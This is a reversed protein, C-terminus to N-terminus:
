NILYRYILSLSLSLAFSLSLAINWKHCSPNHCEFSRWGRIDSSAQSPRRRRLGLCRKKNAGRDPQRWPPACGRERFLRSGEGRYNDTSASDTSCLCLSYILSHTLWDKRMAVCSREKICMEILLQGNFFIINWNQNGLKSKYILTSKQVFQQLVTHKKMCPLLRKSGSHTSVKDLYRSNIKWFSFSWRWTQSPWGPDDPSWAWVCM